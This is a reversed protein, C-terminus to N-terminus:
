PLEVKLHIHAQSNIRMDYLTGDYLQPSEDPAAGQKVGAVVAPMREPHEQASAGEPDHDSGPLAHPNHPTM